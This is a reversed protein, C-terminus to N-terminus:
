KGAIGFRECCGGTRAIFAAFRRQLVKRILLAHDGRAHQRRPRDPQPRSCSIELRERLDNSGVWPWSSPKHAFRPPICPNAIPPSTCPICPTTLRARPPIATCYRNICRYQRMRTYQVHDAFNNQTLRKQRAYRTCCRVLLVGPSGGPKVYLSPRPHAVLAEVRRELLAQAVLSVGLPTPAPYARASFAM